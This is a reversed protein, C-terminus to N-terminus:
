SKRDPVSLQQLLRENGNLPNLDDDLYFGLSAISTNPKAWQYFYKVSINTGQPATNTSVLNFKMVSPWNGNNSPLATRNGTQGAGLDWTQNYGDRIAPYGGGLPQDASTRDARGILSYIFGANLGYNEYPVYWSSFETSTIYALTDFAPVREDVTGHYWLHVNSHYAGATGQCGGYGSCLGDLKRIYAGAVPQGYILTADDQWYNDHFLVNQYTRAPADIASYYLGDLPFAPDNLPHPDLTTLHDVWVGNTGLRLSIESMLSGGRSHGILHIPFESLAHGNLESIFNTIQLVASVPSAIQYTNYSDGDALQSWDLAVIIEGSDASTPPSGGIRAWTIQYSGGVLVVYFKYFTYSSGAFRHHSPINTAMGTVWDNANGNLGHTIITVGGGRALLAVSLALLTIGQFAPRRIRM